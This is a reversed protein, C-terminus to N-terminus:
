YIDARMLCEMKCTVFNLSASVVFLHHLQCKVLSFGVERNKSRIPTGSAESCKGVALISSLSNSSRVLTM